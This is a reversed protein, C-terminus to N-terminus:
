DQGRETLEVILKAIRRTKYDEIGAEKAIARVEKNSLASFDVGSTSEDTESANTQYLESPDKVYGNQLYHDMSQPRCNIISCKVGRVEVEDGEKYLQIAM